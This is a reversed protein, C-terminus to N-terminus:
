VGVWIVVRRAWFCCMISVVFPMRSRQACDWAEVGDVVDVKAEVVLLAELLVDSERSVFGCRGKGM